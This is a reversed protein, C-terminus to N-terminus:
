IVTFSCQSGAAQRRHCRTSDGGAAWEPSRAQEPAVALTAKAANVQVQLNEHDYLRLLSRRAEPGRRRLEDEVGCKRTYLTEFRALKDDMLSNYQEQGIEIYRDLLRDITFDELKQRRM